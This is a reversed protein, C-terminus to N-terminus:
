KVFESLCCILHKQIASDQDRVHIAKALDKISMLQGDKFQSVELLPCLGRSKMEFAYKSFIKPDRLLLIQKLERYFNRELAHISKHILVEYVSNMIRLDDLQARMGSVTEAFFVEVINNHKFSCSWKKSAALFLEKEFIPIILKKNSFHDLILDIHHCSGVGLIFLVDARSIKISQMELWANADLIPQSLGGLHRGKWMWCEIGESNLVIQFPTQFGIGNM